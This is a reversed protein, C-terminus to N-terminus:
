LDLLKIVNGSLIKNIDSKSLPLSEINKVENSTVTWPSDTGFLVKDAGHNKIMSAMYDAGMDDFSYSTDFYIDKGVLHEYAENWNRYGGMHAAIIKINPFDMRVKALKDPPCHVPDPLGIDIGAHLMVILGSEDLKSYGEYMREDDVFFRQYDPHLKVGKVGNDVLRSIESSWDSEFPYLTGFSILRDNSSNTSIAWDNISKVQSPKTAIPMLVSIDIGAEDMAMLLGKCTGDGFIPITNGYTLKNVAKEAIGDPFVHAHIDIIM